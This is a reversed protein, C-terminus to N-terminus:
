KRANASRNANFNRWKNNNETKGIDILKAATNMPLQSQTEKLVETSIIKNMGNNSFRQAKAQQTLSRENELAKIIRAHTKSLEDQDTKKRNNEVEGLVVDHAYESLRSTYKQNTCPVEIYKMRQVDYVYIKSINTPDYKFDVHVHKAITGKRLRRALDQLEQSQYFLYKFRIGTRQITIGSKFKGLIIEWNPNSVISPHGFEDIYQKWLEAPRGMVGTHWDKHYENVLWDHFIEIFKRYGVTAHKKPDYDREKKEMINSFTTGPIEHILGTNITRFAREVTGKFWAKKPPAHLLKIDLQACADKLWKSKFDKGNDVVLLKPKGYAHWEEMKPYLEKMYSKTSFAHKMALMVSVYSAPEFGIHVGLYCGTCCDILLTVWPRGIPIRSEDDVLILDLRTHDMEVRELPENPKVRTMVFGETDFANKWGKTDKANQFPDLQLIRRRVTSADPIPLQVSASRKENIENIKNRIQRYLSKVTRKEKRKGTITNHVIEEVEKCLRTGRGSNFYAPVLSTIDGNSNIYATYWRRLTAASVILGRAELETCRKKFLQQLKKTRSQLLPKIADYRKRAEDQYEVPLMSFDAIFTSITVGELQVNVNAEPSGFTIEGKEHLSLVENRSSKFTRDKSLNTVFYEDEILEKKIECLDGKLWFKLGVALQVEM